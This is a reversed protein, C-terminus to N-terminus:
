ERFGEPFHFARHEKMQTDMNMHLDYVEMIKQMNKLNHNDHEKKFEELGTTFVPYDSYDYSDCVIIMNDKKDEIGREFWRIIDQSTTAM